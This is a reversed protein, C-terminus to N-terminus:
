EVAAPLMTDPAVASSEDTMATIRWQRDWDDIDFLGTTPFAPPRMSEFRPDYEIRTTFRPETASVSGAVLTGRIILEGQPRSNFRRVSFRQRAFLAAQIELDGPQTQAPGAVEIIGNSILTLFHQQDSAEAYTLNGVISLRRPAFVSVVGSVTGSLELVADDDAVILMANGPAPRIIGAESDAQSWDVGGDARFTLRTHEQFRHVELAKEALSFVTPVVAEPMAVTDAGTEIGHRFMGSSRLRRSIGQYGAISVPGAFLPQRRRDTSFNVPTNAHFRGVVTDSALVVDTDWNNIFKAYWSFAREQVILRTSFVQGDQRQSLTVEYRALATLGPASVAQVAVAFRTGDPLLLTDNDVQNLAPSRSDFKLTKESEAM